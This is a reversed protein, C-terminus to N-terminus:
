EEDEFFNKVAEVFSDPDNYIWFAIYLMGVIFAMGTQILLNILGKKILSIVDWVGFFGIDVM